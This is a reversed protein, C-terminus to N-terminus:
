DSLSMAAEQVKDHIWKYGSEGYEEIFQEYQMEEILSSLDSRYEASGAGHEKWIIGITSLSFYTGLCAAYQLLLEVDESLKKMRGQILEVVDSIFNMIQKIQDVDCSWKTSSEDYTLLAECELVSMFQLVFFPNDLTRKFCIKALEQTETENEISMMAMILNM